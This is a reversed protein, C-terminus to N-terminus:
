GIPNSGSVVFLSAVELDARVALDVGDPRDVVGEGGVLIRKAEVLRRIAAGGEQTLCPDDRVDPPVPVGRKRVWGDPSVGEGRHRDVHAATGPVARDVD